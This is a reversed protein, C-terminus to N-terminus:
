GRLDLAKQTVTDTGRSDAEITVFVGHLDQEIHVIFLSNLQSCRPNKRLLISTSSQMGLIPDPGSADTSNKEMTSMTM